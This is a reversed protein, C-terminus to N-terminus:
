QRGWFYIWLTLALWAGVIIGFALLHRGLFFFRFAIAFFVLYILLPAITRYKGAMHGGIWTVRDADRRHILVPAARM